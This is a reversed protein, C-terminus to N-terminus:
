IAGGGRPLASPCAAGSAVQWPASVTTPGRGLFGTRSAGGLSESPLLPAATTDVPCTRHLSPPSADGGRPLASPCAAGSAVQWPASVTTPGRGLFGTR